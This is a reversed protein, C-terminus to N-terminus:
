KLHRIITKRPSFIRSKRFFGVKSAIHNRRKLLMRRLNKRIVKMKEKVEKEKSLQIAM